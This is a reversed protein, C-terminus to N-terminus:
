FFHNSEFTKRRISIFNVSKMTNEDASISKKSLLVEILLHESRKLEEANGCFQCFVNHVNPSTYLLGMIMLMRSSTIDATLSSFMQFNLLM